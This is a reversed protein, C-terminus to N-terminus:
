DVTKKISTELIPNVDYNFRNKIQSSILQNNNEM